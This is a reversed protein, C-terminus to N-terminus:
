KCGKDRIEELTDAMSWLISGIFIFGLFLLGMLGLYEYTSM